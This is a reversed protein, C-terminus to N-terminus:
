LIKRKLFFHTKAMTNLQHLYLGFAEAIFHQCFILYVKSMILTIKGICTLKNSNSNSKM